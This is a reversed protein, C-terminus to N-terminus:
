IRNLIFFTFLPKRKRFILKNVRTSNIRPDQFTTTKTNHDLFYPRGERTYCMEFGPPLPSPTDLPPDDMRRPDEWQTTKSLHNVFYPRGQNDFMRQWGSIVFIRKLELLWVILKGEPLPEENSDDNSQTTSNDTTTNNNNNETQPLFRHEFQNFMSHSRAYQNQWQAVNSLHLATPPIWTTIRTNHDVYYVRGRDDVREEWGPLLVTQNLLWTTRRRNHDM